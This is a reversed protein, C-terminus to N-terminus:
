IVIELGGKELIGQVEVNRVLFMVWGESIPRNFRVSLTPFILRHIELKPVLKGVPHLRLNLSLQYIMHLLKAM